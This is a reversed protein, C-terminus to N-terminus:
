RGPLNLPAFEAFPSVAVGLPGAPLVLQTSQGNRRVEVVIPLGPTGELSLANLEALSAVHKGDYAVIEDGAQIGADAAPSSALVQRISVTTARGLASLYREYEADGMEARLAMAPVLTAPPTAAGPEGRQVDYQAQIAEMRLEDSRRNIWDVRQQTFGAALLQETDRASPAYGKRLLETNEALRQHTEQLEQLQVLSDESPPLPANPTSTARMAELGEALNLLRQEVTAFRLDIETLLAELQADSNSAAVTPSFAGVDPLGSDSGRIAFTAVILGFALGIAFFGITKLV